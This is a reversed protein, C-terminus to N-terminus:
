QKEPAHHWTQTNTDFWDSDRLGNEKRVIPVLGDMLAKDTNNKQAIPTSEVQFKGNAANQEDQLKKQLDAIHALDGAYKKDAHVKDTLAKTAAQLEATLQKQNTDLGSQAQKLLTDLSSKSSIFDRAAAILADESPSSPVVIVDGKPPDKPNDQASLNAAGVVGVLAVLIIVVFYKM